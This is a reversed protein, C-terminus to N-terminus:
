CAGMAAAVALALPVLALVASWMWLIRREGPGLAKYDAYLPKNLTATVVALVMSSMATCIGINGLVSAIGLITATANVLGGVLGLVLLTQDLGTKAILTSALTLILYALASKAATSWSLPSEVTISLNGSAGRMYNIYVVVISVAALPIVLALGELAGPGGFLYLAVAILVATKAQMVGIVIPVLSGLLSRRAEGEMGSISRTITSIMAESSVISGLLASYMLGRAGWIRAATYSTFSLAIVMSFFLYIKMLDVVGLIPPMTSVIPGIILFLAAVELMAILEAYDISSAIREAPTKLALLLTVLVSLSVSELIMGMGALSGILFTNLMVIYTTIGLIRQKLMRTYAYLMIFALIPLISVVLFISGGGGPGAIYSSLAGYLAVLGFTRMGPVSGSKGGRKASQARERELGVLVGGLLGVLMRVIFISSEAEAM